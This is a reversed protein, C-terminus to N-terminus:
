YARSIGYMGRAAAGGGTAGWGTNGYRGFVGGGVLVRVNGLGMHDMKFGSLMREYDKEEIELVQAWRQMYDRRDMRSVSTGLIVEPQETYTRVLHRLVEIHLAEELLFGWKDFEFPLDLGYTQHPQAIVNLRGIAARLLQAMRNRGFKSQAYTQLHPGGNPSDFLDAFRIWCHEVAAKMGPQLADYDPANSGVQLSVRAVDPVTNVLYTFVVSFLGPHTTDIVSLPMVYTGQALRVASQSRLAVGTVDNYLTATVASGDPDLPAGTASSQITLGVQEGAYQSIYRRDNGVPEVSSM